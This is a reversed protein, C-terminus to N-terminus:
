YVVGSSFTSVKERINGLGILFVKLFYLNHSVKLCPERDTGYGRKRRKVYIEFTM